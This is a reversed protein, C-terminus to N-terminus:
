GGGAPCAVRVISTIVSGRFTVTFSGGPCLENIADAAVAWQEETCESAAARAPPAMLAAGGFTVVVAALNIIRRDM